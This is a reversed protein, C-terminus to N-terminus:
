EPLPEEAVYLLFTLDVHGGAPIAAFSPSNAAFLFVGDTLDLVAYGQPEVTEDSHNTVRWLGTSIVQALGGVEGSWDPASAIEEFSPQDDTYCQPNIYSSLAALNMTSYDEPLPSSLAHARITASAMRDRWAQAIYREGENPVGSTIAM